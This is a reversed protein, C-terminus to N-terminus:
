KYLVLCLINKTGNNLGVKITFISAFCARLNNIYPNISKM